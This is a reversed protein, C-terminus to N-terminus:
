GSSGKPAVKLKLNPTKTCIQEARATNFSQIEHDHPSLAEFLPRCVKVHM